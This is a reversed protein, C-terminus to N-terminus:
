RPIWSYMALSLSRDSICWRRNLGNEDDSKCKKPQRASRCKDMLQVLPSVPKMHLGETVSVGRFREQSTEGPLTILSDETPHEYPSVRVSLTVSSVAPSAFERPEHPVCPHPQTRCKFVLLDSSWLVACMSTSLPTILLKILIESGTSQSTPQIFSIM